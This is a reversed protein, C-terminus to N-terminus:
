YTLRGPLRRSQYGPLFDGPSYATLAINDINLRHYSTGNEIVRKIRVRVNGAVGVRNSFTQVEDADPATFDLGVQRWENGSDSSCEVKWTVQSDTGYRRYQFIVTDLGNTLDEKMTIVSTGYGRLRASRVGVRWDKFSTGILVDSLEWAVDTLTVTGLAYGNKTEGTGEFDVAMPLGQEGPTFTTTTAVDFQYGTADEVPMWHVMFQANSAATAKLAQPAPMTMRTGKVLIDDINSVGNASVTGGAVSMNSTMLWRIAVLSRNDCESPLSLSSIVGNNFNNSCVISEGSADEWNGDGIRYQVEFNAPGTSSSRQRSSLKLAAYNSSSFEVMWFKSGGGNDWGAANACGSKAGPATSTLLSPFTVSGVGEEASIMRNTNIAIGGDAIADASNTPFTWEALM